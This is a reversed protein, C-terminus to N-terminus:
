FECVGPGLFMRYSSEELGRPTKSMRTASRESCETGPTVRVSDCGCRPFFLSHSSTSLSWSLHPHLMICGGSYVWHWFHIANQM